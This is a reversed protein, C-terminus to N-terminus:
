DYLAERALAADPLSVGCDTAAALLRREWDNRPTILARPRPLFRDRLAELAVAEPTSGAARASAEIASELEPSVAIVM